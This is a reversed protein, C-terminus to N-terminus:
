LVQAQSASVMAHNDDATASKKPVGIVSILVNFFGMIPPCQELSIFVYDGTTNTNYNYM